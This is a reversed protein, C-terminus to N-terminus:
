SRSKRRKIRKICQLVPGNWSQACWTLGPALNPRVRCECGFKFIDIQPFSHIRTYAPKILFFFPWHWWRWWLCVSCCGALGGTPIIKSCDPFVTRDAAFGCGSLWGVCSTRLESPSLSHQHIHVSNSLFCLKAPSPSPPLSTNKNWQEIKLHTHKVM